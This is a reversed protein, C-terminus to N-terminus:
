CWRHLRGTPGAARKHPHAVLPAGQGSAAIDASRLDTVSDIGTAEALRAGNMLQITYGRAPDHRVTQGHAGLAAIAQPELSAQELLDRVCDAYLDALANAALAASALEDPGPQQLDTLQRRVGNGRM